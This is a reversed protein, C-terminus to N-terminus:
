YVPRKFALYVHMEITSLNVLSGLRSARSYLCTNYGYLVNISTVIFLM